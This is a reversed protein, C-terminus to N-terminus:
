DQAPTAPAVSPNTETAPPIPTPPSMIGPTLLIDPLVLTPQPGTTTNQRDNFGSANFWFLAIIVAVVIIVLVFPVWVYESWLRVAVRRDFRGTDYTVFGEPVEDIVRYKRALAVNNYVPCQVHRTSLCYFEQHANSVSVGGRVSYCCNRQTPFDSPTEPDDVAGLFMCGFEVFDEDRIPHIPEM